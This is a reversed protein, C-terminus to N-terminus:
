KNYKAALAPVLGILAQDADEVQEAATKTTSTGKEDVAQGNNLSSVKANAKKLRDAMEEVINMTIDLSDAHSGLQLGAAKRDSEKILGHAIMADVLPNVREAAAAKQEEATKIAATAVGLAKGTVDIYSVVDQATKNM